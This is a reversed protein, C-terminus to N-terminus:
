FWEIEQLTPGQKASLINLRFEQAKVVPFTVEFDANLTAGSLVTKWTAGDRYQLEYNEVRGAYAEKIRVGHISQIRGLDTSIWAQSTGDDTAWRTEPDGDFAFQPGFTATENRYVNSATAHVDSPIEQAPLEMASGDLQLKVITDIPHQLKVPVTLRLRGDQQAFRIATGNLLAARTVKMPLDPLEITETKARLIHVYITQGRRTSALGHTPKWPGGRTDYISEGNRALWDGMEKLRKVQRPEIEGSPMPGVNFLLNGDGGVCRVLTRLCQELSKMKDDPKWSWQECITMCTEWPRQDQYKGIRQEPTDYDGGDGTRDNITIDPQLSRVLAITKSGRGEFLQPVDNWITILPGYHTVLERIQSLLYQNYADLDSKERKVSGGPSTLPFDPHWWDCTSYYAGFAMGQKRCAVSLEQVLDRQFPTQTINYESFKTDWLAFGDHHKTTLVIYKMGAAKAISVWTDANFNTPNFKRYLNDYVEIPTEAGRSWGIEKGTLSVPGFHIFMGFRKAQWNAIAAPNAKPWSPANTEAADAAAVTLFSCSLLAWQKLVFNM